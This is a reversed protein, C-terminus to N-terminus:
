FTEAHVPLLVAPTDVRFSVPKEFGLTSNTSNTSNTLPCLILDLATKVVSVRLVRLLVLDLDFAIIVVSARLVRLFVLDLDFAIIVV